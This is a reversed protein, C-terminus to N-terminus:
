FPELINKENYEVAVNPVPAVFIAPTPVQEM